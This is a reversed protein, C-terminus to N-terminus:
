GNLFAKLAAPKVPKPLLVAGVEAAQASLRDQTAATVLAIRRINRAKLMKILELGDPGTEGLHLDVLAADFPGPLALAEQASNAITPVAGWRKLLAELAATIPQENDVCLVRKGYLPTRSTAVTDVPAMVAQTRPTSIRFQSGHGMRSQVSLPHGLLDALRQAIALGLGAAPEDVPAGPLRVFEGFIKARAEDPIGRGTDVVCIDVRGGKRRAGVVVAGKDTYRIANAVLNQVMSRLLDRDTSIWVRTPHVRLKLGKAEAIPTFERAIDSFLQNLALPGVTPDIGGAELKSLNLLATLLRHASEISRDANVALTHSESQEVEPDERLAGIFLRAAHLPQLLDHSAAALFRTKSATAREAMEVAAKLQTTRETVRAELQENAEELQRAARRLDTIDTYSTVYAGGPLPEGVVRLVRGDSGVREHFHRQRRSLAEVRRSVWSETSESGHEVEGHEANYRYVHAIPMGVHLFDHPLGFMEVYPRNWAVVRLEEDVVAVGQDINDLTTLLLQRNFQVAQSAEDLMRVVDEPARGGGSLAAGIVRRAAVAGLAGALMREAARALSADAPDHPRLRVGAEEAWVQFANHARDEGIFRAVLVRLDEVSAGSLHGRAELWESGMHDVFARAQVRDILGPISARSVVVYTLLNLGLSLFVGAAFPDELGMLEPVDLLMQPALQPLALMFLWVTMGVWLGAMAGRAHGNRWLVAGFLSPALQALAAFSVLGMAALGRSQDMAQYYLWALFLIGIIAARRINLVMKAVPTGSGTRLAGILPLVLNNSVMASLAVAEIIVMATAASFGGVFVISTLLPQHSQLPLALVLLDPNADPFALRGAAVLPLVALSTLLLYLPFLWQARRVEGPEGGEVFGVHFQRPLCFIALTAVLTIAWFRANGEPWESLDGLGERLLAPSHDANLLLIVAFAAAALLAGMKVISEVGIAQILGRNHETLDPRRAGFLIAFGALVGALILVALSESGHIGSDVNIMEGAMTLSRLQLAIYPLSGLIAVITVSAGLVPSKGYRSSLFDALSGANARKAASAIRRWLPFLLTLGLAPGIYIPLYEWGSRAATGVAGYYTWSTCYIALSLSYLSPGLLGSGKAKIHPREYWWAIAFLTAMYAATMVLTIFSFM